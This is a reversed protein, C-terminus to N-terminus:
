ELPSYYTRLYLTLCPFIGSEFAGLLLRTAILSAYHQIFAAGIIIGSWGVIFFPIIRSPRLKKMMISAPVEFAIYTVYFLTVAVNLRNGTLDLDENTGAITANGLTTLIVIHVL